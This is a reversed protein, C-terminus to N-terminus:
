EGEGVRDIELGGRQHSHGVTPTDQMRLGMGGGGRVGGGVPATGERYTPLAKNMGREHLAPWQGTNQAIAM